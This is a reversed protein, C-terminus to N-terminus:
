NSKLTVHLLSDFSQPVGFTTPQQSERQGMHSLAPWYKYCASGWRSQFLNHIPNPHIECLHNNTLTLLLRFENGQLLHHHESLVLVQCYHCGRAPPRDQMPLLRLTSPVYCAAHDSLRVPQHSETSYQNALQSTKVTRVQIVTGADPVSQQSFYYSALIVTAKARVNNLVKVILSWRQWGRVQIHTAEFLQPDNSIM